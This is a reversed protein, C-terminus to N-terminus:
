SLALPLLHAAPAAATQPGALHTAGCWGLHRHSQGDGPRDLPDGPAATRHLDAGSGAGHNGGGATGQRAQPDQRAVPGRGRERCLATTRAYGCGDRNEYVLQTNTTAINASEDAAM